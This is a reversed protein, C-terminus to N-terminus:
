TRRSDPKPAPDLLGRAQCFLFVKHCADDILNNGGGCDILAVVLLRLHELATTAHTAIAQKTAIERQMQEASPHRLLGGDRM